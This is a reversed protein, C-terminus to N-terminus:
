PAVLAASSASVREHAASNPGAPTRTLATARPGLRVSTVLLM